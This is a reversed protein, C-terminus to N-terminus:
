VSRVKEEKKVGLTGEAQRKNYHQRVESNTEKQQVTPSELHRLTFFKGASALTEPKIGPNPLDGPSPFPLGSWYEQRSFGMSLPAQFAVMHDCLLQICSLLQVSSFQLSRKNIKPGWTDLTDLSHILSGHIKQEAIYQRHKKQEVTFYMTKIIGIKSILFESIWSTIYCAYPCLTLLHHLWLHFILDTKNCLGNEKWQIHTNLRKLQHGVRQSGISQLRGPEETWPIRWAFISSHTAM